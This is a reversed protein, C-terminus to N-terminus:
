GFIYASIEREVKARGGEILLLKITTTKPKEHVWSFWASRRDEHLSCWIMLAEKQYIQSNGNTNKFILHFPFVLLGTIRLWQRSQEKLGVRRKEVSVCM